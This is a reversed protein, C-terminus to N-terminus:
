LPVARSRSPAVDTFNVIDAMVGSTESSGFAALVAADDRFHCEAIAITGAGNGAPFFAACRELGHRTWAEMVLPVHIAVYYDRDFRTEADGTYSVYIITM